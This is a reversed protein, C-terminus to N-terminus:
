RLPDDTAGATRHAGGAVLPAACEPCWQWGTDVELPHGCAMCRASTGGARTAGTRCGCRRCPPGPEAEVPHPRVTVAAGAETVTTAAVLADMPPAERELAGAIDLAEGALVRHRAGAATFVVPGTAVGTRNVLRVGFTADLRDNLAALVGQCDSVAALARLADDPAAVPVGFVTVIADGIRKEIRGGHAELAAGMETFYQDLVARLREHDLREALATSGKLDSVVVTVHHETRVPWENV